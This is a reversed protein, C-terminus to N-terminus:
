LLKLQALLEASEPISGKAYTHAYRVIGARDIVYAARKDAGREADFVGFASGVAGHPWFDSLLPFPVGGLHTAWAKLSPLPDISVQLIEVELAQFAAYNARFGNVQNTWGGTFAFPLFAVVVPRGRYQSLTIAQEQNHARLSFDPAVAGVQIDM